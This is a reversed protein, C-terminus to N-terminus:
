FLDAVVLRDGLLQSEVVRRERPAGFRVVAGDDEAVDVPAHWLAGEDCYGGIMRTVLDDRPYAAEMEQQDEKTWTTVPAIGAPFNMLNWPIYPLIGAM